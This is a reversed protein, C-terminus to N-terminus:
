SDPLWEDPRLDRTYPIRAGPVLRRAARVLQDRDGRTLYLAHHLYADVELGDITGGLLHYERWLDGIGVGACTIATRMIRAQARAITWDDM